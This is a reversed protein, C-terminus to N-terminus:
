HAIAVRKGNPYRLQNSGDELYYDAHLRERMTPNEIPMLTFYRTAKKAKENMAVHQSLAATIRGSIPQGELTKEVQIVAKWWRHMCLEGDTCENALAAIPENSVLKGVVVIDSAYSSHGGVLIAMVFLPARVAQNM